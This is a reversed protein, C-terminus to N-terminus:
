AAIHLCLCFMSKERSNSYNDANKNKRQDNTVSPCDIINVVLVAQNEASVKILHTCMVTRVSLLKDMFAESNHMLCM